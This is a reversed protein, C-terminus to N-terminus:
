TLRSRQATRVARGSLSAGHLSAAKRGGKPGAVRAHEGTPTSSRVVQEM